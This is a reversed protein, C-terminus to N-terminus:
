KMGNNQKQQLQQHHSEVIKKKQSNVNYMFINGFLNCMASVQDANMSVKSMVQCLTIHCYYEEM